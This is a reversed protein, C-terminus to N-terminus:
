IKHLLKQSMSTNFSFAYLFVLSTVWQKKCSTQELKLTYSWKEDIPKYNKKERTQKIQHILELLM